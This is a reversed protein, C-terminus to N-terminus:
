QYKFHNIYNSWYRDYRNSIKIWQRQDKYRNKDEM